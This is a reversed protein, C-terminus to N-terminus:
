KVGWAGIVVGQLVLVLLWHGADIALLRYSRRGFSYNSALTTLVFGFWIFLGAIAGNRLTVDGLHGIVGALMFAMIVNAVLTVIFPVSSRNAHVADKTFGQAAMWHKSLSMYWAAGTAYGVVAAIAVAWYNIGAFVM